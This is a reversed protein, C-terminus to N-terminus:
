GVVSVQSSLVSSQRAQRKTGLAYSIADALAMPEGAAPESESENGTGTLQRRLDDVDDRLQKRAFADFEADRRTM